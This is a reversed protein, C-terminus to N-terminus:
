KEKMKENLKFSDMAAKRAEIIDTAVDKGEIKDRAIFFMDIHHIFANAPDKYLDSMVPGIQERTDRVFLKEKVEMIEKPEPNQNFKDFALLTTVYARIIGDVVGSIYAEQATVDWLNWLDAYNYPSASDVLQFAAFIIIAIALKHFKM